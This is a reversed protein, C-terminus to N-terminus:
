SANCASQPSLQHPTTQIQSRSKERPFLDPFETCKRRLRQQKLHGSFYFVNKFPKKFKVYIYKKNKQRLTTNILNEEPEKALWQCRVLYRVGDKKKEKKMECLYSVPIQYTGAGPPRHPEMRTEDLKWPDQVRCRAESAGPKRVQFILGDPLHWAEVSLRIQDGLLCGVTPGPPGQGGGPSARSPRQERLLSM